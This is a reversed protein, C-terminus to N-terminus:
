QYNSGDTIKENILLVNWPHPWDKIREWWKMYENEIPNTGIIESFIYFYWKRQSLNNQWHNYVYWSNSIIYLWNGMNITIVSNHGFM